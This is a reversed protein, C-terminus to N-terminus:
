LLVDDEKAWFFQAEKQGKKMMRICPTEMSYGAFAVSGGAYFRIKEAEPSDQLPMKQAHRFYRPSLEPDTKAIRPAGEIVCPVEWEAVFRCYAYGVPFVPPIDANPVPHRDTEEMAWPLCFLGRGFIVYVNKVPENM